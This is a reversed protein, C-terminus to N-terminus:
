TRVGRRALVILALVALITIVVPTVYDWPMLKEKAM